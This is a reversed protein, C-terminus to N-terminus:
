NQGPVGIVQSEHDKIRSEHNTIRSEPLCSHFGAFPMMQLFVFQGV